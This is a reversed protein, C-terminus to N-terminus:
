RCLVKMGDHHEGAISFELGVKAGIDDAEGAQNWEQGGVAGAQIVFAFHGVDDSPYFHFAFAPREFGVFVMYIM